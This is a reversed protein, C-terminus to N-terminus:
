KSATVIFANKVIIQEWKIAKFGTNDLLKCIESESYIKVDGERNFRMSINLYLRVLTAAWPDAILINGNPKLVRRIETLVTEPHPYHHFSDTCIIMNFIEDDFPLNESDGERLDANDGLKNHAIELMKQSLDVGAIETNYKSSVLSLLNGTGCGVDLLKNFSFQDLKNLVDEYLERAHKGKDGSDYKEAQKNYRDKSQEKYVKPKKTFM